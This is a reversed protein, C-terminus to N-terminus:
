IEPEWIGEPRLEIGSVIKFKIKFYKPDENTRHNKGKLVTMKAGPYDSKMMIALAPKALTQQGGFAHEKDKNMQMAIIAIGDHLEDHISTLIKPIDYIQQDGKVEVYDIVHLGDPDHKIADKYDGFDDSFEFNWQDLPIHNQKSIRKRINQSGIETSWYYTKWERMNLKVCEIMIATKGVNPPASYTIIDGPEFYLYREIAFPLRIDAIKGEKIDAFKKLNLDKNIKRFCGNKSGYREILGNEVSRRLIESINKKEKRTSVQTYKHVDTSMFIGNADEIFESVMVSLSKIKNLEHNIASGVKTIAEQDTFPKGGAECCNRAFLLLYEQIEQQPMGSKVLFNALHFLMHDRKGDPILSQPCKHVDTSPTHVDQPYGTSLGQKEGEQADGEITYISYDRNFSSLASIYAEPLASIAVELISLGEKWAYEGRGNSSPPAIIYGGESRVDCDSLFRVANGIGKEYKFYRHEGGSPSSATPTLMAEPTIEEIAERGQESDIDVVTLNSIAGTVIGINADKFNGSWWEEVQELSPKETQYQQWKILPKKEESVPIVAFDCEKRYWRAAKLMQESM